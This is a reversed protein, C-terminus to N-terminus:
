TLCPGHALLIRCFGLGDFTNIDQWCAKIQVRVNTWPVSTAEAPSFKTGQRQFVPERSSKNLTGGASATCLHLYLGGWKLPLEAYKSGLVATYPQPWAQQLGLSGNTVSAPAQHCRASGCGTLSAATEQMRPWESEWTKCDIFGSQRDSNLHHVKIWSQCSQSDALSQQKSRLQEAAEPVAAPLKRATSALSMQKSASTNFDLRMLESHAEHARMFHM